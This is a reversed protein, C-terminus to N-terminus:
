RKLYTKESLNGNSEEIIATIYHWKYHDKNQLKFPISATYRNFPINVSNVRLFTAHSVSIFEGTIKLVDESDKSAGIMIQVKKLSVLTNFSIKVLYGVSDSGIVPNSLQSSDIVLKTIAPETNQAIIQGLAVHALFITFFILKKM